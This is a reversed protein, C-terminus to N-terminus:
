ASPLARVKPLCLISAPQPHLLVGTETVSINPTVPLTFFMLSLVEVAEMRKVEDISRTFHLALDLAVGSIKLRALNL